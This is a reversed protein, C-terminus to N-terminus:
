IVELCVMSLRLSVGRPTFVVPILAIHKDLLSLDGPASVGEHRQYFAADWIKGHPHSVSLSLVVDSRVELCVLQDLAFRLGPPRLSSLGGQFRHLSDSESAIEFNVSRREQRREQGSPLHTQLSSSEIVM